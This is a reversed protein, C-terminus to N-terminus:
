KGFYRSQLNTYTKVSIIALVFTLFKVFLRFSLFGRRPFENLLLFLARTKQRKLSLLLIRARLSELESYLFVNSKFETKKERTRERLYKDLRSRIFIFNELKKESYIDSNYYSSGHTRHAGLYRDLTKIASFFIIHNSIYEDPCIKLDAPIPLIKKLYKRKVAIGSTGITRYVSHKLVWELEDRYDFSLTRENLRNGNEDIEDLLHRVIGLGEDKNFIALVEAIKEPYFIDDADLLFIYDGFSADFGNNLAQAQGQNEQYLYRVRGKYPRLVEKTNDTSGDDVVIVEVNDVNQFLVSEVAQPLYRGYNYTTILVTTKV